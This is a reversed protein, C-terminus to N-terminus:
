QYDMGLIAKLMECGRDREVAIDIIERKAKALIAASMLEDDGKIGDSIGDVNMMHITTMYKKGCDMIMAFGDCEFGKGFREDLAEDHDMSEVRILYKGMKYVRGKMTNCNM